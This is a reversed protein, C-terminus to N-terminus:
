ECTPNLNPILRQFQARMATEGSPPPPPLEVVHPRRAGVKPLAAGAAALLRALDPEM